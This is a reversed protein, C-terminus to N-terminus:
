FPRAQIYTNLEDRNAQLTFLDFLQTFNGPDTVRSWSLKALELRDTESSIISLLQRIQATNFYNATNNFAEKVDRVKDWPFFHNSAKQLVADFDAGSMPTRSNYQVNTGTGGNEIVYTNLDNKSAESNLLDYLSTFNVPDSTRSYSLKALALRDSESNILSLMQRIQATSFYNITSNFADRITNFRGAQNWKSNINQLLQNFQYNSMPTKVTTNNNTNGNIFNNLDDKSAQSYFLNYLSTFSSVDTVRAYSLKALALRDNEATILTLLRRIQATSFFYSTNNFANEIVGYKGAQNWQNNVTQVLQNFQYAAMPTRTNDNNDNWKGNNNNPNNRIFDNLENKSAVSNFIDYLQMFDAPNTVRPYALKALAVRNPEASILLLLQRVQNTTFYNSTNIFADREVAIKASQLWKSRVTQLLQSFDAENMPFINQQDEQRTDRNQVRRETFTVQGNANIRINMDYEQRLQFTKSYIARGYTSTNTGNSYKGNNNRLRYVSITHSGSPQNSIIIEKKVNKNNGTSTTISNSYYSTGDLVVQYNKNKNAGIFTLTITQATASAILLVSLLFMFIKM